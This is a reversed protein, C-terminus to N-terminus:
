AVLLAVLIGALSAVAPNRRCWRRLREWRGAPRAGVPEGRLWRRLDEALAGATAYRRATEKALAKRCVTEWDHPVKDNLRRPPRPEEALVQHLVMARSGRFPPEGTLLEYLVVGLSYVDSRRDVGHGSGAAQEPSMYAPTGLVQGELTLTVEDGER